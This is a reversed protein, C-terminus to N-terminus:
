KIRYFDAKNNAWKSLVRWENPRTVDLVESSVWSTENRLEVTTYNTANIWSSTRDRMSKGDRTGKGIWKNWSPYGESDPYGTPYGSGSWADYGYKDSAFVCINTNQCGGQTAAQAPSAVMGVPILLAGVIGSLLMKKSLKM